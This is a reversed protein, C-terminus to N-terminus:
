LHKVSSEAEVISRIEALLTDVEDKSIEGDSSAEIYIWNLRGIQSLDLTGRENVASLAEFGEEVRVRESQPTLRVVEMQMTEIWSAHIERSYINYLSVAFLSLIVLTGVIVACGVALWGLRRREVPIQAMSDSESPSDLVFPTAPRPPLPPHPEPIDAIKRVYYGLTMGFILLAPVLIGSPIWIPQGLTEIDALNLMVLASMNFIFHIIIPVVISGTALATIGLVIGALLYSPIGQPILHMVAFLFSTLLIASPRRLGQELGRQIFGRFLVEEAVAAGVGIGLIKVLWEYPTNTRLLRAMGQQIDPDLPMIQSTLNTLQDNLIILSFALPLALLVDVLSPVELRLTKHVDFRLAFTLLLTPLLVALPESLLLGVDTSISILIAGILLNLVFTVLFLTFATRPTPLRGQM